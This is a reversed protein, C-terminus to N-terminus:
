GHRRTKWTNINCISTKSVGYMKALEKQLVGKKLYARIEIVQKNTLKAMNNNEGCVFRRKRVGDNMNDIHTGVFLHGPNVCSRVDCKHLVFMDKPIPGIFLEYAIRHAGIYRGNIGIYSYGGDNKALGCIWCGSPDKTVARMLREKVPIPKPGYAM